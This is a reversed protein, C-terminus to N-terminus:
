AARVRIQFWAGRASPVLTLEGGFAKVRQRAIALGLGSGGSDRATTYFRDFIRDSHAAAIGIGDDSVDIVAEGPWGQGSLSVSVGEGGHQWANELLNSLVIDFSARDIVGPLAAPMDGISVRYGKHRADAAIEAAAEAIDCSEDGRPALADARALELIRRVLRELRETDALINSLFRGREEASMEDLHDRLLEASGRIGTVPTKLEHSIGLALDRVYDARAELTRALTVISDSLSQAERTMPGRLPEVAHIEGQAVRRAMAALQRTPRVVTHGAFWALAVVAAILVIALELLAYRKSYLTQVINRPTRSVLVAGLVHGEALVPVAVSVRLGTNRSISEWGYDAPRVIRERLKAAPTGKLAHAVEEQAALSRKADDEKATSVVIVGWPDVIRIGALTMRQVDTTVAKLAPAVQLGVAEAVRGAPTPDSAPPLITAEALDLQPLLPHWPETSGYSPTGNWAIEAKPMAALAGPPAQELWASRYAASLVAAQALLEAETQRILASEYLRLIGIGAVPLLLVAMYTALLLARIGPLRRFRLAM